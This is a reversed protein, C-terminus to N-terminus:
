FDFRSKGSLFRIFTNSKVDSVRDAKVSRTLLNQGNLGVTRM